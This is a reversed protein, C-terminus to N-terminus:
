NGKVEYRFQNTAGEWVETVYPFFLSSCSVRQHLPYGLGHLLVGTAQTGYFILSFLTTKSARGKKNTNQPVTACAYTTYCKSKLLM